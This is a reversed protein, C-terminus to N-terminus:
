AALPHVAQLEEEEQLSALERNTQKTARRQWILAVAFIANM